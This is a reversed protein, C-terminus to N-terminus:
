SHIIKIQIVHKHYKDKARKLLIDRKQLTLTSKQLFVGM